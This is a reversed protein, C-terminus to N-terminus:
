PKKKKNLEHRQEELEMATKRRKQDRDIALYVIKVGLLIGSLVFLVDAKWSGYNEIIGLFTIPVGLLYFLTTMIAKTEIVQQQKQLPSIFSSQRM